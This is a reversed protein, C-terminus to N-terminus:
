HVSMNPFYTRQYEKDSLDHQPISSGLEKVQDLAKDYDSHFDKPQNIKNSNDM